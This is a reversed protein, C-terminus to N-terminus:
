RRFSTEDDGEEDIRVLSQTTPQKPVDPYRKRNRDQYPYRLGELRDQVCVPTASWDAAEWLSQQIESRVRTSRLFVPAPHLRDQM